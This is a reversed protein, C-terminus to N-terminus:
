VPWAESLLLALLELSKEPLWTDRQLSGSPLIVESDPPRTPRKDRLRPYSAKSFDASAVNESFSVLVTFSDECERSRQRATMSGTNRNTIREPGSGM